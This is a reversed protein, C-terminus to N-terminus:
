SISDPGTSNDTSSSATTTASPTHHHNSQLHSSPRGSSSSRALTTDTKTRYTTIYSISSKIFHAAKSLLVRLKPESPTDSEPTEFAQQAVVLTKKAVRREEAAIRRHQIGDADEVCAIGTLNTNSFRVSTVDPIWDEHHDFGAINRLVDLSQMDLIFHNLSVDSGDEERCPRLLEVLVAKKRIDAWGNHRMRVDDKLSLCIEPHDKTLPLPAFAVYFKQYHPNSQIIGKNQFTGM